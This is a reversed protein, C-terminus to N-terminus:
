GTGTGLRGLYTEAPDWQQRIQFYAHARYRCGGQGWKTYKLHGAAHGPESEVLWGQTPIGPSCSVVQAKFRAPTHGRWTVADQPLSHPMPTTPAPNDSHYCVALRPADSDSLRIRVGTMAASESFFERLLSAYDRKYAVELIHAALETGTSSCAYHKGLAQRIEVAHLDKFFDGKGYDVYVANLELPTRKDTFDALVTNARDPLMNPLGSTHSLLHRVRIPDGNYQLNPYDEQLYMRVDDDLSLKHELVANAM